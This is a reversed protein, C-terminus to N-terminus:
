DGVRVRVTEVEASRWANYARQARVVSASEWCAASWGAPVEVTGGHGLRFGALHALPEPRALGAGAVIGVVRRLLDRRTM